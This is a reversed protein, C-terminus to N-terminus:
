LLQPNLRWVSYNLATAFSVWALYPLLLWAAAKNIRAFAVMTALILALLALIDAFAWGGQHWGFFLWSWLANLGLQLLFLSLAGRAGAWGRESWVLWASVAMAMYLLTWVPGFVGAPPAWGPKVLAAYFEPASASAIGGIAGAAACLLIWWLLGLWKSTKNMLCLDSPPDGYAVPVSAIRAYSIESPM